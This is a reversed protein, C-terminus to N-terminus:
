PSNTYTPYTDIILISTCKWNITSWVSLLYHTFNLNGKLQEVLAKFIICTNHIITAKLTFVYFYTGYVDNITILVIYSVNGFVFYKCIFDM